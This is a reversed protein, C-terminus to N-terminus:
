VVVFEEMERVEAGLKDAARLVQEIIDDHLLTAESGSSSESSGSSPHRHHVRPHEPITALSAPTLPTPSSELSESKPPQSADDTTTTDISPILTPDRTATEDLLPAIDLDAIPITLVRDSPYLFRCSM